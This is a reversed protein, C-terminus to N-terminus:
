SYMKLWNLQFKRAVPPKVDNEKEIITGTSLHDSCTSELTATTDATNTAEAPVIGPFLSMLQGSKRSEIVILKPSKDQSSLNGAPKSTTECFVIFDTWVTLEITQRTDM